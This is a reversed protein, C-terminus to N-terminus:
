MKMLLQNQAFGNTLLDKVDAKMLKIFLFSYPEETAANYAEFLLKKSEALNKAITSRKILVARLEEVM